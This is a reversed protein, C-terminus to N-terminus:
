SINAMVYRKSYETKKVNVEELWKQIEALEMPNTIPQRAAILVDQFDMVAIMIESALEIKKKGIFEQRWAHLASGAIFAMALTGLATFIDAVSGLVM